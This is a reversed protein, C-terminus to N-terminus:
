QMQKRQNRIREQVFFHVSHAAYTFRHTQLCVKKDNTALQYNIIVCVWVCVFVRM